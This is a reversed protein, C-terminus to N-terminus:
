KEEKVIIKEWLSDLKALSLKTIEEGVEQKSEATIMYAVVINELWKAQHDTLNISEPTNHLSKIISLLEQM